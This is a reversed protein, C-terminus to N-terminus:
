ALVGVLGPVVLLATLLGGLAGLLIALAASLVLEITRAARIRGSSMGLSRLPALEIRRARGTSAAVAAFGLVALVITVAVGAEFLTLTPALVPSPSLTGPTVIEARTTLTARIADAAEDPDASSVWLQNTAPVAGGLRVALAELAQLDVVIGLSGPQGPIAPLVGAVVAPIATAIPSLRFSLPEGVGVGIREALEAGIAVPLPADAAPRPLMRITDDDALAAGPDTAFPITEAGSRVDDLHVRVVTADPLGPASLEVALLAVASDPLDVRLESTATVTPLSGLPLEIAAGDVDALWLRVEIERDAPVSEGAEVTARLSVDSSVPTGGDAPGLPDILDRLGPPAGPLDALHAIDAGVLPIPDSGLSAPESLVAFAGDVGPVGALSAASLGPSTVDVGARADVVVRLDAGTAAREARVRADDAGLHFVAALAVAGTAVAVVLVGAALSRARRALQRLPLVPLIGRGARAIREAVAVVPGAIVPAVLAGALLVLVPAAIALADTRVLGDPRVQVPSGLSLFQVLALGAAVVAIVLPLLSALVAARGSEARGTVPARLEAVVALTALAVGLVAVAAAIAAALPLAALRGGAPLLLWLVALAAGAGLAAGIVSVLASERAAAATLARLSAGRARLLLLEAGRGAAIARGILALVIAGAVAILVFPIALVGGAVATVRTARAVGDDLTGRVSIASNGGGLRQLATRLRELGDATAPLAAVRLADRQPILAWRVSPAVTEAAVVEESVLLPGAVLGEAGSAIAPDGFWRPDAPDTATWTGAVTLTRDGLTVTDGPALDLASAAADQIATEGSGAPWSGDVLVAAAVAGPDALLLVATDGVEAVGVVSRELQVPVERLSEAVIARVSDDQQQADASLRTELRLASATPGSQEVLRRAGDDLVPVVAGGLVALSGSVILVVAGFAVLQGIRSRARRGGFAPRAM